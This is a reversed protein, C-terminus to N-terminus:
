GIKYIHVSYDTFSDQFLGNRVTIIRSEGLVQASASVSFDRLTFSAITTGPRMSVAFLYTHGDYRKLMTDVPILSNSSITTVGNGVSQTNLVPALTTIQANIISVATSMSTDALLGAEIFGPNFVHCFYVIGRAGHIISMWVEAKVYTPTPPHPNNNFNTCELAMWVPKKYESWQRLRDIGYPVYWLSQCIKKVEEKWYEGANSENINMPYIDYCLIDAGIAYQAYDESHNFKTGRGWWGDWAVGQGLNLFVPRTSDNVKMDNYRRVVEEPTIPPDYKGSSSNYQANDPEDQHLWAEIINNNEDTLGVQNQDCVVPMQSSNLNSLQYSTPGEWLGVFTNIGIAKYANANYTSQLWVAIPFFNQDSQTGNTWQSYYVSGGEWPLYTDASFNDIGKGGSGSNQEGNFNIFSILFATTTILCV